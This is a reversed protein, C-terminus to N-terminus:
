GAEGALAARGAAMMQRQRATFARTEVDYRGRSRARLELVIDPRRLMPGTEIATLQSAPSAPVGRLHRAGARFEPQCALWHRRVADPDPLPWLAEPPPVLDADLDEDEFSPPEPQEEAKALRDRLLDAGTIWCYAEGCARSLPEHQMGAICTEAAHVTGIHGVAWIAAQQLAPVRLAAYVVEHDEAAGLLALLKLCPGSQPALQRARQQAARWAADIGRGVGSEIAAYQVAPDPHRLGASVWDSAQPMPLSGAARMANVQAEVDDSEFATTLESGASVRRFAKLRCLQGAGLHSREVLVAVAARAAASSGLLETGRVLASLRSGEATKLAAALVDAADAAPSSALLAASVAIRGADDSQLGESVVDPLRDGAIRVGELAGHLRDETWSWVEDVNRTLSALEHEWRGWLFSAENFSEEILGDSFARDAPASSM